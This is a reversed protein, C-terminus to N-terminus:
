ITSPTPALAVAMHRGNPSWTLTSASGELALMRPENQEDRGPGPEDCDAAAIWVKTLLYDEEYIEADFGHDKGDKIQKDQRPKATFAVEKGDPSWSYGGIDTEHELMKRAEGGDVAIVYLAKYKDEGRKALFSIGKGNPTWEISSISVKGTVFPRSQGARDVVHLESWASGDDDAYVPRPVSLTYAILKGDPSIRVSGVSRIRAVTVETMVEDAEVVSLPGTLALSCMLLWGTKISNITGTM